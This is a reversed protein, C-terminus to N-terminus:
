ALQLRLELQKMNEKQRSEGMFNTPSTVRSSATTGM